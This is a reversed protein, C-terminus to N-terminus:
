IREDVPATTTADEREDLVDLFARYRALEEQCSLCDVLHAEIREEVEASIEGYGYFPIQRVIEACTM